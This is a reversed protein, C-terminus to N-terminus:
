SCSHFPRFKGRRVDSPKYDKVRKWWVDADLEAQSYGLSKGLELKQEDSRTGIRNVSATADWTSRISKLESHVWMGTFSVLEGGPGFPVSWEEKQKPIGCQKLEDRRYELAQLNLLRRRRDFYDAEWWEDAAVEDESLGLAVGLEKREAYTRSSNMQGRIAQLENYVWYGYFEFEEGDPELPARWKKGQAPPERELYNLTAARHTVAQLQCRRHFVHKYIPAWWEEDLEAATLGLARGLEDREEASLQGAEEGRLIGLQARLWAGSFEVEEEGPQLAVSWTEAIM